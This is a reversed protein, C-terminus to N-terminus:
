QAIHIFYHVNFPITLSILPKHFSDERSIKQATFLCDILAFNDVTACDATATRDTQLRGANDQVRFGWSSVVVGQVPQRRCTLPTCGRKPPPWKRSGWKPPKPKITRRNM